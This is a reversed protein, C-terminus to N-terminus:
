CRCRLPQSAQKGLDQFSFSFYLFGSVVEVVTEEKDWEMLRM